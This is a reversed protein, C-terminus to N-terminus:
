FNYSGRVTVPIAINTSAREGNSYERGREFRLGSEFALATKPTVQWEVGANLQGTPVWESDFLEIQSPGSINNPVVDFFQDPQTGGAEFAEQYFVQDQSINFSM